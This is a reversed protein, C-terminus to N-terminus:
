KPRISVEGSSLVAEEKPGDQYKVVLNCEDTIDLVKARRKKGGGTPIVDVAKRLVLSREKYAREYHAGDPDRYISFFSELFSAAIHNKADPLKSSLISGAIDKIEDPFGGKPPYVNFGIGLVAYELNGNEMSVSAETLIGAVKKGDMYIDNVWKIKPDESSKKKGSSKEKEPLVAEIAHCAAVAAMTTIRLARHPEINSPRLLVSIYLGTDLPSYFSRGMRGKGGTQSNSIVVAGERAGDSAMEKLLTNTSDVEDYVTIDLDPKKHFFPAMGQASVIDSKKSLSYGRSRQSEIDYGEARLSEVAKWVATRSIELQEAIQEGSFFEGKNKEFLELLAEKTNQPKMPCM